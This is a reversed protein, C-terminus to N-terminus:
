SWCTLAQVKLEIGTEEMTERIACEEWTQGGGSLATLVMGADHCATLSSATSITRVWTMRVADVKVGWWGRSANAIGTRGFDSSDARGSAIVCLVASALHHFRGRWVGSPRRATPAQWRRAIGQAQRGSEDGCANCMEWRFRM